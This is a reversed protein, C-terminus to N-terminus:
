IFFPLSFDTKVSIEGQRGTTEVYVKDRLKPKQGISIIYDFAEKKMAGALIESARIKDNPLIIKTYEGWDRIFSEGSSGRFATVLFKKSM